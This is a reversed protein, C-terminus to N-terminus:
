SVWRHHIGCKWHFGTRCRCDPLLYTDIQARTANMKAVMFNRKAEASDRRSILKSFDPTVNIYYFENTNTMGVWQGHVELSSQSEKFGTFRIDQWSRKGNTAFLRRWQTDRLLWWGGQIAIRM